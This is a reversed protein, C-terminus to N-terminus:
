LLFKPAWNLSKGLSQKQRVGPGQQSLLPYFHSKLHQVHLHFNAPQAFWSLSGLSGIFPMKM